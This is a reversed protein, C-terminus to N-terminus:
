QAELRTEFIRQVLTLAFIIAFLVVVSASAYGVNGYRFANVYFYTVITSTANAPAGLVSNRSIASIQDFIKFSSIVAMILNMFITPLLCPVTVHIFEGICNAGDIKAAERLEEPIGQLGALFLIMYFGVQQWVYMLMIGALAYRTDSFWSVNAMGFLRACFTPIFGDSVLLYMFVTAVAVSSIVYPMFYVTRCLGRAAFKQNLLISLALALVMLVPVTVLVLQFSHEFAMWFYRDRFLKTFNDLGVFTTREPMAYNFDYFCYVISKCLPILFWWLWLVVVPGVFLLATFWESDPSFRRLGRRM